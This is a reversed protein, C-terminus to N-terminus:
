HVSRRAEFWFTTPEIGVNSESKRNIKEGHDRAQHLNIIDDIMLESHVHAQLESEIDGLDGKLMRMCTCM